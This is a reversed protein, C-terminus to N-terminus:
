VPSVAVGTISSLRRAFFQGSVLWPHGRRGDLEGAASWTAVEVLSRLCVVSQHWRLSTPDVPAGSVREYHRVFRRALFRGAARVPPRAAGPLALPPEALLLSTFAVDYAAPGLLSASWDLVTAGTAADLLVNFPHLDGHCVVEPADAPRHDSLWHAAAALDSRNARAASDALTAVLAILDPAPSGTAELRRRVPEADLAHLRAMADALTSPLTRALAPLRVIAAMGSLGALLPEGTALDMVMFARGLGADPDGSLRVRPTPFGHAAVEAQVVTEKAATAADPMVRAVLQHDWGPPAGALRFSVLEAWFGGSLRTPASAFALSPTATAARLVGLLDDELRAPPAAENVNTAENV